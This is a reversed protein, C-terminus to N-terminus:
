EKVEIKGGCYPCYDGSEINIIEGCATKYIYTNRHHSLIDWVCVRDRLAALEKAMADLKATLYKSCIHSGDQGIRWEYGCTCCTCLEQDIM